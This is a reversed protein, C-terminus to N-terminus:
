HRHSNVKLMHQFVLSQTQDLSNAVISLVSTMKDLMSAMLALELALEPSDNMIFPVGYDRCISIMLEATKRRIDDDLNKERLQVIGVGGRLVAPLFKSMDDRHPVCLYLRRSTLETM